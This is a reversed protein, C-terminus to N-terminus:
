FMHHAKILFVWKPVIGIINGEADYQYDYDEEYEDEYAEFEKDSFPQNEDDVLPHWEEKNEFMKEGTYTLFENLSILGDSNKDIQSPSYDTLTHSTM